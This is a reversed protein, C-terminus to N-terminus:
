RILSSCRSEGTPNVMSIIPNEPILRSSHSSRATLIALEQRRSSPVSIHPVAEMTQTDALAKFINNNIRQLVYDPSDPGATTVKLTDNILGNGLAKIEAVEGKLSFHSLIDNYNKM